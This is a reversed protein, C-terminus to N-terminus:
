GFIRLPSITRTPNGFLGRIFNDVGGGGMANQQQQQTDGGQSLSNFIPYTGTDEAGGQRLPTNQGQMGYIQPYQKKFDNMVDSMTKGKLYDKMQDPLKDIYDKDGNAFANALEQLSKYDQIYQLDNSNESDKLIDVAKKGTVKAYQSLDIKSGDPAFFDFGGDDNRQQTYKGPDFMDKIGSIKTKLEDIKQQRGVENAQDEQKTKMSALNAIGGAGATVQPLQFSSKMLAALEPYPTAPAGSANGQTIANAFNQYDM